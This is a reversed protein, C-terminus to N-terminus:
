TVHVGGSPTAMLLYSPEDCLWEDAVPMAPADVAYINGQVHSLIAMVIAPEDIMPLAEPHPVPIPAESSYLYAYPPCGRPLVGPSAIRQHEGDAGNAPVRLWCVPKVPMPPMIDIHLKGVIQGTEAFKELHRQYNRPGIRAITLAAGDFACFHDEWSKLFGLRPIQHGQVQCEMPVILPWFFPLGKTFYWCDGQHFLQATDEEFKGRQRINSPLNDGSTLYEEAIQQLAMPKLVRKMRALRAFFETNRATANGIEFAQCLFRAAPRARDIIIAGRSVSQTKGGITFTFAIVQQEVGSAPTHRRHRDIHSAGYHTSGAVREHSLMPVDIIEWPMGIIYKERFVVLPLATEVAEVVEFGDGVYLSRYGTIKM